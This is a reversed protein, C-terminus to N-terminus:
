LSIRCVPRSKKFLDKGMKKGKKKMGDKNGQISNVKEQIKMRRCKGPIGLRIFSLHKQDHAQIRNEKGQQGNYEQPCQTKHAGNM